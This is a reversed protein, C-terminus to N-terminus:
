FSSSWLCKSIIPVLQVQGINVMKTLPDTFALFVLCAVYESYPESYCSAAHHTM